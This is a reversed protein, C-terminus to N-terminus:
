FPITMCEKITDVEVAFGAVVVVTDPANLKLQAILEKVKM